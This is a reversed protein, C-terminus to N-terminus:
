VWIAAPERVTSAKPGAGFQANSPMDDCRLSIYCARGCVNLLSSSKSSPTVKARLREPGRATKRLKDAPQPRVVHQGTAGGRGQPNNTPTGLHDWLCSCSPALRNCLQRTGFSALKVQKNRRHHAYPLGGSKRPPATTRTEHKIHYRRAAATCPTCCESPLQTNEQSSRCGVPDVLTMFSNKQRSIMGPDCLRHAVIMGADCLRHAVSTATAGLPVLKQQGRTWTRM